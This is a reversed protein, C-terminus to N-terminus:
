SVLCLVSYTVELQVGTDASGDADKGAGLDVTSQVCAAFMSAAVIAVPISFRGSQM